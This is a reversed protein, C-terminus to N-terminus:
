ILQFTICYEYFKGITQWKKQLDLFQDHDGYVFSKEIM